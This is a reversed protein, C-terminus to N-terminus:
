LSNCAKTKSPNPGVVLREVIFTGSAVNSELFVERGEPLYLYETPGGARRIKFLGYGDGSGTRIRLVAAGVQQSEGLMCTLNFSANSLYRSQLTGLSNEEIFQAEDLRRDVNDLDLEISAVVGELADVDDGLDSVSDNLLSIDDNLGDLADQLGAIDGIGLNDVRDELSEIKNNLYQFGIFGIFNIFRQQQNVGEQYRIFRRLKRALRKRKRNVKRIKRRLADDGAERADIEDGLDSALSALDAELVDVEDYLSDLSANTADLGAELDDVRQELQGIRNTNDDIQDKYDPTYVKDGCGVLCILALLCLLKKM